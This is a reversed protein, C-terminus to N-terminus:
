PIRPSSPQLSLYASAAVAAPAVRDVFQTALQLADGDTQFNHVRATGRGIMGLARAAAYSVDIVRGRAFPGRDNVRVVVARGNALNTVRLRSGIPFSRSAATLAHEDFREGSATRSGQFEAGYSSATGVQVPGLAPAPTERHLLSCGAISLSATLVAAL